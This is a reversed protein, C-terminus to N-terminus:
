LWNTYKEILKKDFAEKQKRWDTGSFQRDFYSGLREMWREWPNKGKEIAQLVDAAYVAIDSM